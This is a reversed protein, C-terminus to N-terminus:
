FKSFTIQCERFSCKRSSNKMWLMKQNGLLSLMDRYLQTPKRSGLQENSLLQRVRERESVSLREILTSKLTGYKNNQTPNELVDRIEAAIKMPLASSTIIFKASDDTIGNASLKNEVLLFWLSPDNYSYDPLHLNTNQNTTMPM